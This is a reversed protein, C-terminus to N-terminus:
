ACMQIQLIKCSLRVHPNVKRLQQYLNLHEDGYLVRALRQWKNKNHGPKIEGYGWEALLCYSLMAARQEKSHSPAPTFKAMPMENLAVAQDIVDQSLEFPTGNAAVFAARESQIVKLAASWRDKAGKTPLPVVPRGLYDLAWEINVRCREKAGHPPNLEKLAADIQQQRMLLVPESKKGARTM